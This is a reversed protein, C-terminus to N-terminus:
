LTFTILSNAAAICSEDAQLGPMAKLNHYLIVAVTTSSGAANLADGSAVQMLLLACLDLVNQRLEAQM